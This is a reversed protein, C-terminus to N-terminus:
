GGQNIGFNITQKQIIRGAFIRDGDTQTFLKWGYFMEELLMTQHQGEWQMHDKVILQVSRCRFNLHNGMTFNTDGQSGRPHQLITIQFTVGPGVKKKLSQAELRDVALTGTEVTRGM